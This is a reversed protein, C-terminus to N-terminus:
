RPKKSNTWLARRRPLARSPGRTAVRTPHPGVGGQFGVLAEFTIRKGKASPHLGEGALVIGAEVLEENFRGMAALLETSPMRGAESETTAKVLVMVRM